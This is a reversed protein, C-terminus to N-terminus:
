RKGVVVVRWGSDLRGLLDAARQRNPNGAERSIAMLQQRADDIEGARLQALSLHWGAGQRYPSGSQQALASFLAAAKDMNGNQYYAHALLYSLAPDTNEGAELMDITEQYNGTAFAALARAQRGSDVTRNGRIMDSFVPAEYSRQALREASYNLNAYAFLAAALLAALAAALGIRRPLRRAPRKQEPLGEAALELLRLSAEYAKMEERLGANTGMEREFAEEEERSMRREWYAEIQNLYKM